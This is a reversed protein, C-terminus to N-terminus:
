PGIDGLRHSSLFRWMETSARPGRRDSFQVGPKGGSWAHALGEVLWVELVSQRGMSWRQVSYGHRSGTTVRSPEDRHRERRTLKPRSDGHDYHALWLDANRQANAPWVTGDRTGQFVITPPLANTSLPSPPPPLRRGQMASMIQTPSSASRYPPGSHIGIAAFLDPYTVGLTCAMAAGASLGTAYVREPDIRWRTRNAIMSRILAALIAPEGQYRLQNGPQHWNWCRQGNATLAQEPYVVVFQHKDALENFRTSAAFETPRQGCGHLAVLLPARTTRRLGKPVYVHYSRTGPGLRTTSFWRGKGGPEVQKAETRRVPKTAASSVKKAPRRTAKAPRRPAPKRARSAVKRKARM